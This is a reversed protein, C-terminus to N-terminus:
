LPIDLADNAGTRVREWASMWPDTGDLAKDAIAQLESQSTFLYNEGNASLESGSDGLALEDVSISDGNLEVDAEGELFSFDTVSGSFDFSDVDSTRTM